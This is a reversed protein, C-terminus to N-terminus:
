RRADRGAKVILRWGESTGPKDTTAERAMWLSGGWTVLEGRTYAEGAKYVERYVDALTRVQLDAFRAEIM